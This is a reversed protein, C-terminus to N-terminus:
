SDSDLGLNNKGYRFNVVMTASKKEGDKVTLLLKLNLSM